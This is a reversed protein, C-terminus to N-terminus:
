EKRRIIENINTTLITIVPIISIIFILILIFPITIHVAQPLVFEPFIM